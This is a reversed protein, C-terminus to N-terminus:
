FAISNYYKCIESYSGRLVYNMMSEDFKKIKISIEAPGDYPTYLKYNENRPFSYSFDLSLGTLDAFEDISRSYTNRFLLM